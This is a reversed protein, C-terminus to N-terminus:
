RAFRGIRIARAIREHEALSEAMLAAFGEPGLRLPAIALRRMTELFDPQLTAAMLAEVWRAQVPAPLGRPAGVGIWPRSSWSYGLEPLTPIQPFEESKEANLVALGRLSGDRVHPLVEGSVVACQLHGGILATVAPAGGTFPVFTVDLNEEAALRAMNLHSNSGLAAVGISLRGPERRAFGILDALSAFPAGAAVVVFTLFAGYAWLPQFDRVPDFALEQLQPAVANSNVSLLGITQGDPRARLLEALMITGGAGPRNVVAVPQGLLPELPRALARQTLDFSGGAAFPGLFSVPREPTWRPQAAAPAALALLPALTRRRITM